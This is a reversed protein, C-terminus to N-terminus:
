LPYVSWRWNFEDLETGRQIGSLKQIIEKGQVAGGFEFREGTSDRLISRIPVATAATGVAFVESFRGLTNFPIACHQVTWGDQKAVSTLSESTISRIANQTDPVYITKSAGEVGVFGSTSFEEIQSRTESDLHLTLGFGRQRARAQHPWAPAYNGGLKGSGTGRPASRDFDEMILADLADTGHYAGGPIVYVALVTKNSPALAIQAGSGFLVPRLYLFGASDAPPVFEANGAVALRMCELFLEDSVKPLCVMNASHRMRAAHAEPRFIHLTNEATRFAKLGEYVQQGYNLGPALGHVQIYPSAILEPSSWIGTSADYSCEVHGNVKPPDALSLSSWDIDAPPPFQKETNRGNETPITM